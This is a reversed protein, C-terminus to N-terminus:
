IWIPNKSQVFYSISVLTLILRGHGICLKAWHKFAGDPRVVRHTSSSVRSHLIEAFTDSWNVGLNARPGSINVNIQKIICVFWELCKISLSINHKVTNCQLTNITYVSRIKNCYQQMSHRESFLIAEVSQLEITM